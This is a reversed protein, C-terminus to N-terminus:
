WILTAFSQKLINGHAWRYARLSEEGGDHDGLFSELRDSVVHIAGGGCFGRGSSFGFLSLCAALRLLSDLLYRLNEVVVPASAATTLLRGHEILTRLM